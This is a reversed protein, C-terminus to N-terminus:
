WCQFLKRDTMRSVDMVCDVSQLSDFNSDRQASEGLFVETPLKCARSMGRRETSAHICVASCKRVLSPQAERQEEADM